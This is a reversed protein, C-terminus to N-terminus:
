LQYWTRRHRRRRHCRVVTACRFYLASPRATITTRHRTCLHTVIKKHTIITIYRYGKKNVVVSDRPERFRAVVLWVVTLTSAIFAAVSAKTALCAVHNVVISITHTNITWTIRTRCWRRWGCRRGGSKSETCVHLTLFFSRRFSSQQHRRHGVRAYYRRRYIRVCWNREREREWKNNRDNRKTPRLPPINLHRFFFRLYM